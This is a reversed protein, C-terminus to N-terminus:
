NIIAAALMLFSLLFVGIVAIKAEISLGCWSYYCTECRGEITSYVEKKCRKCKLM